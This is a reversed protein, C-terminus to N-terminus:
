FVTVRLGIGRYRVYPTKEKFFGREVLKRGFRTQSMVWGTNMEAWQCYQKYLETAGVTALPDVRCCEGLFQQLVDMDCRYEETAAMVKSPPKLGTAQWKLCGEIAWILIGPLEARLKELLDRDQKEETVTVEFPILRVRRWIAFDDGKIIPRHNAALFLKFAPVFDFYEGYLFRVSIADGGTVSKILAEALRQGDETEIATVLRVGQLRAIDNRVSNNQQVMLTEAPTNMAYDGFLDRLVNLFTSKGNAGNGYLIFLCQEKTSGTLAYGIARQLFEIMEADGGMIEYLFKTWTPCSASSDYKTCASKTIFDSRNSAQLSGSRLNVTGNTVGLLLPNQDLDDPKIYLGPETKALEIMANIQKASESQTAWKAKKARETDNPEAAAEGYISLVTVKALRAIEGSRDILWRIGDWCLWKKYDPCYRIDDGYRDALRKTNGLETLHFNEAYRWASDLCRLAEDTNLHPNCRAAAALILFEAEDKSLGDARLKAAYRFVTDNRAGQHAGNQALQTSSRPSNGSKAIEAALWDPLLAIEGDHPNEFVYPKGNIVSPPAVVYGGEARVDLGPGLKSVSNKLELGDPLTFYLHWGGSPTQVQLTGPLADHANLLATFSASGNIDGKIDVDVVILGSAKGTAIGINANPWRTWWDRIQNQETTAAKCGNKTLPVKQGRKCPFVSWGMTAYKLATALIPNEISM